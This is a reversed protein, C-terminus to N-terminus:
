KSGVCIKYNKFIVFYIHKKCFFSCSISPYLTLRSLGEGYIEEKSDQGEFVGIVMDYACGEVGKESQVSTYMYRSIKREFIPDLCIEKRCCAKESALRQHIDTEAWLGTTHASQSKHLGQRSTWNPQRETQTLEVAIEPNSVTRSCHSTLGEM